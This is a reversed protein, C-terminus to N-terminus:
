LGGLPEREPLLVQLGTIADVHICRKGASADFEGESLQRMM